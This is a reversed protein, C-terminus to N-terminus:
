IKLFYIREEKEYFLFTLFWPEYVHETNGKVGMVFGFVLVCLGTHVSFIVSIHTQTSCKVSEWNSPRSVNGFIKQTTKLRDLIFVCSYNVRLYRQGSGQTSNWNM